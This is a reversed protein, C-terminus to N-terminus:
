IILENLFIRLVLKFRTFIFDDRKFEIIGCKVLVVSYKDKDEQLYLTLWTHFVAVNKVASRRQM